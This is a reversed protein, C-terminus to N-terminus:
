ATLRAEELNLLWQKDEIGGDGSYGGLGRQAVVRHCPILIPIPNRGVAQGVSRPSGGVQQALTQYTTVSGVPIACLTAWIKKQYPTGFPELPFPFAGSAKPDDFWKDLWDRAECLLPTETQDRGWGWDLSIIKGEEETLTLPGLPSHLSLQPM